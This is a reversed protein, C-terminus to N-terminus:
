SPRGAQKLYWILWIFVCPAFCSSACSHPLHRNPLTQGHLHMFHGLVVLGEVDVSFVALYVSGSFLLM